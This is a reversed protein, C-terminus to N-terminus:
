QQLAGPGVRRHHWRGRRVPPVEAGNKDTVVRVSGVVDLHYYEVTVPAQALAVAPVVLLSGVIAIIRM